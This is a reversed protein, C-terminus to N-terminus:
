LILIIECTWMKRFSHLRGWECKVFHTYDGVNVNYSMLTIKRMWMKRFSHLTIERMWMKRFRLLRVWECKVFHTIERMWLKCISHLRGWECPSECKVNSHEIVFTHNIHTYKTWKNYFPIFFIVLPGCLRAIPLYFIEGDDDGASYGARMTSCSTINDAHM